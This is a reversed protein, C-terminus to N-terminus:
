ADPPWPDDAIRAHLHMSRFGGGPDHMAGRLTGEVRYACHRAVACSADNGLAHGLQLRHLGLEEFAWRSCGELARSALRRGRAEPLTWYSVRADRVWWDVLNVAVGGLVAGNEVVAFSAGEGREWARARARVYRLAGQEDTISSRPTNWRTFDPDTLGRLVAPADAARWPRLLLGRWEIDVTPLM